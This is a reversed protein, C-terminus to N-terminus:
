AGVLLSVLQPLREMDKAKDLWAAVDLAGANIRLDTEKNSSLILIPLFGKGEMQRVSKALEIGNMNPMEYDTILLDVDNRSLAKEAERGDVAEIIEYGHAELQSRVTLRVTISDDVIFIKKSM